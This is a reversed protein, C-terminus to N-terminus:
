LQIYYVSSECGKKKKKIYSNSGCGIYASCQSLANERRICSTSMRLLNNSLASPLQTKCSYLFIHSFGFGSSFKPHVIEQHRPELIWFSLLIREGINKNTKGIFIKKNLIFVYYCLCMSFLCDLFVCGRSKKKKSLYM